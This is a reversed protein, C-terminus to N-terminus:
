SLMQTSGGNGAQGSGLGAFNAAPTPSGWYFPTENVTAGYQCGLDGPYHRQQEQDTYRAVKAYKLRALATEVNVEIAGSQVTHVDTLGSFAKWADPLVSWAGTGPDEQFAALWFRMKRSASTNQLARARAAATVGTMKLKVQGAEAGAKEVIASIEAFDGVGAWTHGAWVLDGTGSWARVPNSPYDLEVIAGILVERAATATKFANTLPRM